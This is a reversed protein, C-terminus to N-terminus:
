VSLQCHRVSKIAPEAPWFTRGDVTMSGFSYHDIVTKEM